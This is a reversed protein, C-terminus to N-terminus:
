ATALAMQLPSDPEMTQTNKNNKPAVPDTKMVSNIYGFEANQIHAINNM